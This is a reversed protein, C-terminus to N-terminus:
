WEIKDIEDKTFNLHTELIIEAWKRPYSSNPFQEILEIIEDKTIDESIFIALRCLAKKNPRKYMAYSYNKTQHEWTTLTNLKKKYEEYSRARRVKSFGLLWGIVDTKKTPLVQKSVQPLKGTCNINFVDGIKAKRKIPKNDKWFVKLTEGDFSYTTSISNGVHKKETTETLFIQHLAM